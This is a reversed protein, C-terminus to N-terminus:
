MVVPSIGLVPVDRYRRECESEFPFRGQPDPVLVQQVRYNGAGYFADAQVVYDAVREDTDLVMCPVKGGIDVKEGHDFARRRKIMIESLTNLLLTEHDSFIVLLEPLKKQTNGITYSFPIFSDDPPGTYHGPHFGICEPGCRGSIGMVVRGFDKIGRRFQKAYPSAM